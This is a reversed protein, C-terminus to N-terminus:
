GSDDRSTNSHDESGEEGAEDDTNRNSDDLDPPIPFQSRPEPTASVHFRERSRQPDFVTISSVKLAPCSLVSFIGVLLLKENLVSRLGASREGDRWGPTKCGPRSDSGGSDRARRISTCRKGVPTVESPRTQLDDIHPSPHVPITRCRRHARPYCCRPFIQDQASRSSNRLNVQPSAAAPWPLPAPMARAPM